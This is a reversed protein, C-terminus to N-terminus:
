RSFSGGAYKRQGRQVLRHRAKYETADSRVVFHVELYRASLSGSNYYKYFLNTWNYNKTAARYMQSSNFPM